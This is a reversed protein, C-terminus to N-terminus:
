PAAMIEQFSEYYHIALGDFSPYHGFWEAASRSEQEFISRGLGHFTTVRPTRRVASFASMTRPSGPKQTEASQFDDWGPNAAVAKRAAELVPEVSFRGPSKAGFLRRLHALAIDASDGPHSEPHEGLGVFVLGNARLAHVSFHEFSSSGALGTERLKDLFKEEPIALVFKVRTDRQASTELGVHVQKHLRAAYALAPIGFRIIGGAGDAENRYDMITVSSLLDTVHEGVTADKGGFIVTFQQRTDATLPFFWWPIDCTFDLHGERAADRCQAVMELYQELIQKRYDPLAFGLLLYPEVDFHIGDFRGDPTMAANFSLVARVADLAEEHRRGAAWSPAGSLAEVRLGRLHAASLFDAYAAADTISDAVGGSSGAFDVSLYIEKLGNRSCFDFLSEAAKASALLPGTNWVWMSHYPIKQRGAAPEQEGSSPVAAVDDPASDFQIDDLYFQFDGPVPFVLVLRVLAGPDIEPFDALPIVVKQWRNIIGRPLYAHLPRTALADETAEGRADVMKIDFDGGPKRGIIWFSLYPHSRADFFRHSVAPYFNFWVGCFGEWERHATVRLSHGSASLHIDPDLYTRARSPERSFSNYGGGLSNTITDNFNWIVRHGDAGQATSCPLIVGILVLMGSLLSALWRIRCIGPQLRRQPRLTKTPNKFPPTQSSMPIAPMALPM